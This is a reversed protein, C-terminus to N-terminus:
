FARGYVGSGSGIQFTLLLAPRKSRSVHHEVLWPAGHFHVVLPLRATAKLGDRVFLTGEDITARQGRPVYEAVRPHPRTTDSMPSPNQPLPAPTQATVVVASVATSLAAARLFRRPSM